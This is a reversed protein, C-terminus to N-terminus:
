RLHHVRHSCTKNLNCRMCVEVQTWNKMEPGIGIIMSISKLPIMVGGLTLSVGIEEAPVLRFLRKQQSIPLGPMGPSLPSSARCGRDLAERAIYGCAKQALSDVATSGIGDLILGNLSENKDFYGAVEAELKPGISCVLIALERADRLVSSIAEGRLVAGNELQMLDHKIGKVPYISYAIAPELLQKRKVAVLLECTLNKITPNLKSYRDIGQRRLIDKLNLSLPIDRIIPV